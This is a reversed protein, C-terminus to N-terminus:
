TNSLYVAIMNCLFLGADCVELDPEADNSSRLVGPSSFNGGTGTSSRPLWSAPKPIPNQKKLEDQVM